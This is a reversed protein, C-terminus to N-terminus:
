EASLISLPPCDDPSPCPAAVATLFAEIEQLERIKRRATEAQKTAIAQVEACATPANETLALLSQIDALSFGLGRWRKILRLRRVDAAGYRRRGNEARAALPTLGIKEYYRITEIKVGSEAAAEGIARM